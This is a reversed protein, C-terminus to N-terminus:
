GIKYTKLDVTTNRTRPVLRYSDADNTLEQSIRTLDENRYVLDKRILERCLKRSEKILTPGLGVGVAYYYRVIQGNGDMSPSIEKPTSSITYFEEKTLDTVKFGASNEMLWGLDEGKDSFHQRLKCEGDCESEDEFIEWEYHTAPSQVLSLAEIGSLEDDEDIYLEVLKMM